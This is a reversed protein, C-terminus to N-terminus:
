KESLVLGQVLFRQLFAIITLPVFSVVVVGAMIVPYNAVENDGAPILRAIGVIATQMEPKSTAVLPWLYLTWGGLFSLVFLAAFSSRSLPLLIDFLFRIPGAGDMRAAKFLDPPLTRFFQRFLFTGAGHGILPLILGLHTDLLNWEATLPAGFVSTVLGNLGTVDLLTEIPSLVNATVQYTTIIRIDLPLMITLLLFAFIFGAWRATFYVLAYATMFALLTTSIALAFAVILSNLMQVPIKTETFVQYVNSFFHLGPYWAFGDRVFHEYSQSANALMLYLPGIIFAIGLALVTMATRDISRSKEIM